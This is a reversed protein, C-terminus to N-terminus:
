KMYKPGLNDVTEKLTKAIDDKSVIIKSFATGVADRITSSGVFAPDVFMQYSERYAISTEASLAFYYNDKLVKELDEVAVEKPEGNEDAVYYKGDIYEAFEGNADKYVTNGDADVM